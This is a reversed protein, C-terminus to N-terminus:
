RLKLIKWKLSELKLIIEDVIENIEKDDTNIVNKFQNYYKTRKDLLKEITKKPSKNDLLPREEIKDIRDLITDASATLLFPKTNKKLNKINEDKLVIGGGPSIVLNDSNFIIDNLYKSELKRFYKEGKKNFIDKVFMKTKAEIYQDLDIFQYDLRKALQKGITTKGAAMFGILSIIM